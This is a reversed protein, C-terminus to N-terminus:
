AVFFFRFVLLKRFLASPYADFGLPIRVQICHLNQLTYAARDRAWTPQPAHIRVM